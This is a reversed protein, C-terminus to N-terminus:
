GDRITVSHMMGDESCVRYRGCQLVHADSKLVKDMGQLLCTLVRDPVLNIPMVIYLSFHHSMTNGM